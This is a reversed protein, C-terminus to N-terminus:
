IHILSLLGEEDSPYRAAAALREFDIARLLDDRDVRGLLAAIGSQWQTQSVQRANVAACLDEMDALWPRSALKLSGTVAQARVAQRVLCLTALGALASQAFQRRSSM